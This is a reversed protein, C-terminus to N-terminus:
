YKLLPREPLPTDSKHNSMNISFMSWKKWNIAQSASSRTIIELENPTLTRYILSYTELIKKTERSSIWDLPKEGEHNPLHCIVGERILYKLLNIGKKTITEMLHKKVANLFQNDESQTFLELGIEKASITGSYNVENRQTIYSLNDSNKKIYVKKNDYFPIFTPLEDTLCWEKSEDRLAAVHFHQCTVATHFLTNGKKSKNVLMNVKAGAKVLLKVMPLNTRIVAAHLATPYDSNEHIVNVDARGKEVLFKVMEINNNIAARQLPPSYYTEERIVVNADARGVEVLFKVMEMNNSIVAYQLPTPCNLYVPPNADAGVNILLKVMELNNNIAAYHLATKKGSDKGEANVDPGKSILYQLTEFNNYTAAWITAETLASHEPAYGGNSTILRYAYDPPLYLNSSGKHRMNSLTKLFQQYDDINIKQLEDYRIYYLAPEEETFIYEFAHQKLANQEPVRPMLRLLPGRKDGWRKVHIDTGTKILKEMFSIACEEAPDRAAFVFLEKKEESSSLDKLKDSDWQCGAYLDDLYCDVAIESYFRSKNALM